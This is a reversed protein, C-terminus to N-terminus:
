ASKYLMDILSYSITFVLFIVIFLNLKNQTIILMGGLLLSLIIVYNIFKMVGPAKSLIVGMSSIVSSIVIIFTFCNKLVKDFEIVKFYDFTLLTILILLTLSLIKQIINNM